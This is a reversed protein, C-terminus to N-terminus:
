YFGIENEQVTRNSITTFGSKSNRGSPGSLRCVALAASSLGIAVFGLGIAARSCVKSQISFEAQLGCQLGALLPMRTCGNM